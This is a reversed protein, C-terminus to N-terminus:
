AVTSRAPREGCSEPAIEVRQPPLEITTSAACAASTTRTREPANSRIRTVVRAARAGSGPPVVTPSIVPTSSAFVDIVHFTTLALSIAPGDGQHFSNELQVAM